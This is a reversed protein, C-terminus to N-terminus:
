KAEELTIGKGLVAKEIALRDGEVPVEFLLDPETFARARIAFGGIKGPDSIKDASWLDFRDEEVEKGAFVIALKKVAGNEDSKPAASIVLVRRAPARDSGYSLAGIVRANNASEASPSAAMMDHYGAFRRLSSNPVDIALIPTDSDFLEKGDLLSFFVSLDRAGCCGPRDVRYLNDERAEGAAGASRFTWAPKGALTTASVEVSSKEGEAGSDLLRDFTEELLLADAGYREPHVEAFTFRRNVTHTMRRGDKTKWSEASSSAERHLRGPAPAPAASGAVATLVLVPLAARFKGAESM